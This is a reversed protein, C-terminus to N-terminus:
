RVPTITFGWSYDTATDILATEVPLSGWSDFGGVGCMKMDICLEVFDRPSLDCTHTQRPKRNRARTEDHDAVQEPTLNNWQYPRDINEESDFDEVSNRLANFEITPASAVSNAKATFMLGSGTADVASFWRVDTHHGCEQPRVYPFYMEEATTSWIGALTGMRRDCYNEEPGRGYYEIRHFSAPVRMRMGIRPADGANEAAHFRIDADITGDSHVLYSVEYKNGAALLYCVRLRAANGESTCNVETVNFERSSRKWVQAREPLGNGYDNDTPGRWFNPCLGFGDSAYETGRVKYSVIM